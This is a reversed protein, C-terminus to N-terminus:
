IMKEALTKHSDKTMSRMEMYRLSIGIVKSIFRKAKGNIPMIM